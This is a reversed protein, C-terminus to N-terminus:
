TLALQCGNELPTIAVIVRDVTDSFQPIKCTFVLRRPRDIALYEGTGEVEQGHMRNVITYSGGVRADIEYRRGAMERAEPSTFLWQSAMDPKLWADFVREAPADFRRTVEANVRSETTM